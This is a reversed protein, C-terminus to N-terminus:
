QSKQLSVRFGRIFSKSNPSYSGRKASRLETGNYNWSGGRQVRETGSIPGQPNIQPDSPYDARWDNVWEFVNGHMDYFGWLNAAYQGVDRTQKFDIGNTGGGDWNYNAMSSNIDNGWSYATTTKQVVPM